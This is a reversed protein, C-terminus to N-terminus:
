PAGNYARDYTRYASESYLRAGHTCGLGLAAALRLVVAAVVTGRPTLSYGDQSLLLWGAAILREVATATGDGAPM